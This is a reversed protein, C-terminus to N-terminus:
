FSFQGALDPRRRFEQCLDFEAGHHPATKQCRFGRIQDTKDPYRYMGCKNALKFKVKGSILISVLYVEQAIIKYLLDKAM